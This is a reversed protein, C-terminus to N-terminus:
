TWRHQQLHIRHGAADTLVAAKHQPGTHGPWSQSQADEAAFAEATSLTQQCFEPQEPPNKEAGHGRLLDWLASASHYICRQELKVEDTHRTPTMFSQMTTCPSLSINSKSLLLVNREKKKTHSFDRKWLVRHHSRQGRTQNQLPSVREEELRGDYNGDTISVFQGAAASDLVLDTGPEEDPSGASVSGWCWVGSSIDAKNELYWHIQLRIVHCHFAWSPM